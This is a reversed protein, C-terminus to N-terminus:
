CGVEIKFQATTSVSSSGRQSGRAEGTITYTGGAFSAKANGAGSDAVGTFGNFDDINVSEVQPTDADLNLLVKARSPAATIDATLLWQVQECSVAHSTRTMNDVTIHATKQPVKDSNMFCGSSFAM